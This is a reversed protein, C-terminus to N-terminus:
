SKPDDVEGAQLSHVRHLKGTMPRSHHSDLAPVCIKLLCTKGLLRQPELCELQDLIVNSVEGDCFVAKEVDNEAQADEIVQIRRIHESKQLLDPVHAGAEGDNCRVGAEAWVFATCVFPVAIPARGVALM